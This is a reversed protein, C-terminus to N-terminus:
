LDDLQGNFGPFDLNQSERTSRHPALGAASRDGHRSRAFPPEPDVGAAAGEM